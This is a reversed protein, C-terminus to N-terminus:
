TAAQAGALYDRKGLNVGNHRLIAYATTVHFFFNPLAHQRLYDEGSLTRTRDRGAPFTIQRAESGDILHPEVSDIFALTGAIRAQLEPLTSESDEHRPADIGALRAVCLKASDCAITVQRLLPLMDPALRANALVAPDYHRAQADAQAKDLLHSLNSLMSRFVPLSASSMTISM